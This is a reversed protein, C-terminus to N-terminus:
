AKRLARQALRNDLLMQIGKGPFVNKWTLRYAGKL